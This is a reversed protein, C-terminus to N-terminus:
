PEELWMMTSRATRYLGFYKRGCLRPIYHMFFVNIFCYLILAIFGPNSVSILWIYLHRKLARIFTKLWCTSWSGYSWKLQKNRTELVVWLLTELIPVGVLPKTKPLLVEQNLKSFITSQTLILLYILSTSYTLIEGSVKPKGRPVLLSRRKSLRAM